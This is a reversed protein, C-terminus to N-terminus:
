PSSWNLDTIPENDTFYEGLPPTKAPIEIKRLEGTELNLVAPRPAKDQEWHYYMEGETWYLFAVADRDPSIALDGFVEWPETRYITEKEGSGINLKWITSIYPKRRIGRVGRKWEIERMENEIFLIEENSVWVISGDIEFDTSPTKYVIKPEGLRDDLLDRLIISGEEPQEEEDIYPSYAIRKGDPSISIAFLRGTEESEDEITRRNGNMDVSHLKGSGRGEVWYIKEGDPSWTMSFDDSGIVGQYFLSALKTSNKGEADMLWIEGKLDNYDWAGEEYYSREGETSLLAITRRDPSFIPLFNRSREGRRIGGLIKLGSGDTRISYVGGYSFLLLDDSAPKESRPVKIGFLRCSSCLPVSIMTMLLSLCVVAVTKQRAKYRRNM